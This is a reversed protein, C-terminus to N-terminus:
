LSVKKMGDLGEKESSLAEYLAMHFVVFVIMHLAPQITLWCLLQCLGRSQNVDVSLPNVFHLSLYQFSKALTATIKGALRKRVLKARGPDGDPFMNTAQFFIAVYNLCRGSSVSEYRRRIQQEGTFERIQFLSNM